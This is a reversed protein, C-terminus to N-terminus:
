PLLPLPRLTWRETYGDHEILSDLRYRRGACLLEAGAKGEPHPAFEAVTRTEAILGDEGIIQVGQSISVRVALGGLLGDIGIPSQLLDAV